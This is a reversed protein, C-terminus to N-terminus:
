AANRFCWNVFKCSAPIFWAHTVESLFMTWCCHMACARVRTTGTIRVSRIRRINMTSHRSCVFYNIHTCVPVTFNAAYRLTDSRWWCIHQIMPVTSPYELGTSLSQEQGEIPEQLRLRFCGSTCPLCLRACIVITRRALVSRLESPSILLITLGWPHSATYKTFLWCSSLRGVGVGILMCSICNFRLMSRNNSKFMDFWSISM